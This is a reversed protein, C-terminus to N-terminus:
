AGPASAVPEPPVVSGDPRMQPVMPPAVQLPPQMPPQVIQPPPIMPGNRQPQALGPSQANVPPAVGGNAGADAGPLQGTAAPPLAALELEFAAGGGRPAIRVSKQTVSEVVWDADIPAGVKYARPAKGDVTLLAIGPGGRVSGVVGLVKFRSSAAPPPVAPTAVGAGAAPEGFLRALDGRLGADADTVRAHAPVPQPSATLSLAWYAASGAAATWVLLSLLRPVWV